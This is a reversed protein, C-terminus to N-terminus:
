AALGGGKGAIGGSGALGGGKTLSSMIRGGAAAVPAIAVQCGIWQVNNADSWARTGTAGASVQTYSAVGLTSAPSAGGGSDFDALETTSGPHTNPASDDDQAYSCLVLCNAVTTTVTPATPTNSNGTNDIGSVDKFTAHQGDIRFIIGARTQNGGGTFTYDAPESGGAVKSLITLTCKDGASTTTEEVVTWGSLTNLVTNGDTSLFMLMLDGSVVGSPKTIVINDGNTSVVTDASQSQVVPVAM